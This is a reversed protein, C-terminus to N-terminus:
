INNKKYCKINIQVFHRDANQITAKCLEKKKREEAQIRREEAENALRIAEEEAARKRLKEDILEKDYTIISYQIYTGNNGNSTLDNATTGTGEEFNWYGVMGAENGTPPCNMYQQIEQQTLVRNWVCADDMNGDLASTGINQSHGGLILQSSTSINGTITTNDTDVLQGDIYLFSINNTRDFVCAIHTWTSVSIPNYYHLKVENSNDDINAYIGGNPFSGGDAGQIGLAYRKGGAYTTGKMILLQSVAPSNTNVWCALTINDNGLSLSSSNGCDIYDDGGDFNLSHNNAVPTADGVTAHYWGGANVNITQTTDGTSWSYYSYGAGADLTTSDGDCLTLSDPGLDITPNNVTITVSDSCSGSSNAIAVSYTTTQSPSVIISPTTDGTSWLIDNSSSNVNPVDNSYTSGSITGNNGNTTQDYAITGSGENFNWYGQLNNVPMTAGSYITNIEGSTLAKDYIFIDDLKGDWSWSGPTQLSGILFPANNNLLSSITTNESAVLAGNLYLKISNGANFVAVIHVWENSIAPTGVISQPGGNGWNEHIVFEFNGQNEYSLHFGNYPSNGERKSIITTYDCGNNYVWGGISFSGSMDLVDGHDIYSNTIQGGCSSKQGFDISSNTGDVSLEVSDGFCISTDNQAITADLVDLYVSDTATCGICTQNPVNTNWVTGNNLTGDNGNSTQDATTTGTGEEFNWYGVLGTENGTPPCNMYTEIESISLEKSWFTFEDLNGNLAYVNQGHHFGIRNVVVCSSSNSFFSFNGTYSNNNSSKLEGDIFINTSSNNMTIVVHTYQNSYSTMDYIATNNSSSFYSGEFWAHLENDEKKIVYRSGCGGVGGFDLIAEQGASSNWESKIWFSFSIGDLNSLSIDQNFDVYDDVGDFSLSYDNAVPTLDGITASYWGAANVNITQTTDGTSWSYYNYGAGADLVTSDGGCLSLTDPGLDITPNNVTITVSDSCSTTGNSVSVTYTTTQSPSVTISPTTESTSWLINNSGLGSNPVDISWNPGNTLTGNNANSTQDSTTTGTGEEFNWYGVLNTENGSPPCTIYQQVEQLTLTKKWIQVNDIEGDLYRDNAPANYNIDPAFWGFTFPENNDLNDTWTTISQSNTLIGDVYIKCQDDRDYVATYSHWQGDNIAVISGIHSDSHNALIEAEITYTHPDVYIGYGPGLSYYRKCIIQGVGSMNNLSDVKINFSISFDDTGVDLNGSSPDGINVYDDTGDFELSYNNDACNNASQLGLVVSDGFCISTDNQAINADLMDVYVSDTATCGVCTQNPTSSSWSAGNITGNNGNSTLDNANSGTGEEFNWYGLLGTENGTPPCNMYQQIESISLEKSWFTFEDIEGTYNYSSSSNTQAIRNVVSCSTNFSYLAYPGNYNNTNSMKHVGNVYINLTTSNIIINVYAFQNSYNSMDYAINNNSSNFYNGEFSVQIENGSKKIVYRPACGGSPGSGGFDIIHSQSSGSWDTKIWFSFSIGNANNFSMTNSIDIYDDVGDFSLSHNNSVATLDGVTASYWGAANVNITQTTDGTSWSYYNYGAGADLTTSDGGCLTLTDPGLDITPNNVTITVSDSCSGSGNSVAVSYTTTQSPGVTISPTTESTSWLINNSNSGSNPVDNSYTAGSITGNNGNTTQDYAITGSGEEFNWYGVLDAENGTPPCNMYQNIEQVSLSDSWLSIDDINGKFYHNGNEINNGILLDLMQTTMQPSSVSNMLVGNLYTSFIGGGYRLTLHYWTSDNPTLAFNSTLNNYFLALTPNSYGTWSITGFYNGCCDPYDRFGFIGEYYISPLGNSTSKFWGMLTTNSSTILQSISPVIAQDDVGDFELSYNNDPCNNASQLGLVVSDGFCISTDNQAINADLMDVYVSDTATCGVCTQNPTSSSWSAGNITGNNGNSTLDNANSGTGEEFNWYGLLGTENGTPPCNMYQQIEQESLAINWIKLEDMIGASQCGGYYTPTYNGILELDGNISYNVVGVSDGNVYFKSMFGDSVVAISNWGILGAVSYGSQHWLGNYPDYVAIQDNARISLFHKAGGSSADGCAIVNHGSSTNCTNNPLPFKMQVQISYELNINIPNNLTILEGVGDFNLSHNNTVPTLDGVTAHYWGGANINISQTTDGTSWSYYNYGAGADLTTNNGCSTITDSTFPNFNTIPCPNQDYYYAGMDNRTNDPDNYSSAPDGADICPSSAQLHFDSASSNVFLPNLNINGTGPWVGAAGAPGGGQIDSYTINYNSGDINEWIISNLITASLNSLIGNTNPNATASNNYFTSNIITLPCNGSSIGGGSGGGTNSAINNSIETYRIEGLADHFRIGGGNDDSINNNIKSNLITVNVPNGNNYLSNSIGSAWIGGGDGLNTYNGSIISNDIILTGGANMWIGGGHNHAENNLIRSNLLRFGNPGHCWIGGARDTSINDKITLNDFVPMFIGTNNMDIYIGGGQSTTNYSIILNSLSPNCDDIAVGGQGNTLTFGSLLCTSDSGPVFTVVRGTGQGDIVTSSIYSTDGTTLYYSSLTINKGNFNINEYYTGPSVIVTDGNSSANIGAQITAQQSPVNITTAFMSMSILIAFITFLIKM